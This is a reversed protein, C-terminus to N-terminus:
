FCDWADGKWLCGIYSTQTKELFDVLKSFRTQVGMKYGLIYSGLLLVLCGGEM